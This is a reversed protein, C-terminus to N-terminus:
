IGMTKSSEVVSRISNEAQKALERRQSFDKGELVPLFTVAVNIQTYALVRFLHTLFNEQVWAADRLYHGHQDLYQIAIPQVAIHHDLAPAFIRAHFRMVKDGYGTTGEPFVLISDGAKINEAIQQSAIQSANKGGRKIYVTGARKGLWGIMPWQRIESKSLFGVSASGIVPIDLWSIHNAVWLAHQNEAPPEGKIILEVGLVKIVHSLWKRRNRKELTNIQGKSPRKSFSTSMMLIAGWFLLGVLGVLKYTIRFVKM